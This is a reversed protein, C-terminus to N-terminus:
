PPAVPVPSRLCIEAHVAGERESLSFSHRGPFALALRQTVNRLGTGTGHNEPQSLLRGSNVVRITLEDHQRAVAIELRLPMPSTDMGYKVANEVLPHILFCPVVQTRAAADVRITIELRHEFRMRQIALYNEIAGIEDGITNEPGSGALSYRLFEALETVIERARVPNELITARISNLANFLFHPNLQYRLMQLQAKQALETAQRVKERQDGLQLWHDVAFYLSTFLGYVVGGRLGGNALVSKLTPEFPDRWGLGWMTLGSLYESASGAVFCLLAALLIFPRLRMGPQLRAYLLFLLGCALFGFIGSVTTYRVIFTLEAPALVAWQIANLAAWLFWGAWLVLPMLLSKKLHPM